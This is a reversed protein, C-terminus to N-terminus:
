RSGGNGLKEWLPKIIDLDAQNIEVYEIQATTNHASKMLPGEKRSHFEKKKNEGM